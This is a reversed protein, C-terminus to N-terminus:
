TAKAGMAKAGVPVQRGKWEVYGRAHARYSAWLVGAYLFVAPVYYLIFIAPFQNRSLAVGYAIHSLLVLSLLVSFASPFLLIEVLVVAFWHWPVVRLLEWYVASPTGGVLLYLNKRWGQWMEAFSRYMRVRVLGKGPGFWLGYGAAKARQALAVDELVNSAVAEHGGIAGYADARIMLFQGNAAAAKSGRDNVEDYSYLRALRCYIFPILAEEYWAETIQEPSLSVLAAQNEAAIRLARAAADPLLEADADTFLLWEGAAKQAGEWVAHNKGLWGARPASSQMVRLHPIENGLRRLIELTHDTSEDDVVIIQTIEAQAALSRVCKEIVAEENRAPVIATLLPAPGGRTSEPNQM